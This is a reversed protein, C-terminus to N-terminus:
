FQPPPANRGVAESWEAAADHFRPRFSRIGLNDRGFFVRNTLLVATLGRDPDVWLSCGTFGLHGFSRSGFKEGASSAEPSKLDWGLGRGGPRRQVASSAIKAPLWEGSDLARRWADGLAVVESATSFLGAHSSAGGMAWANDDHVEGVLRRARRPCKETPAINPTGEPPSPPFFRTRVLGLPRCVEKDIIRQIPDGTVGELISLLALYGLDSYCCREGPACIPPTELVTALIQRRAAETGRTEMAVSEFLPLWAPFGAEHALLQSLTAGAYPTPRPLLAALPVDLDLRGRAVLRLCASATFIKTLSAIDFLTDADVPGEFAIGAASDMRHKAGQRLSAQAATFIRNEFGNELMFDITSAKEDQKM